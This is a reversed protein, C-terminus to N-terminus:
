LLFDAAQLKNLAYVSIAFDAVGDGNVDGQVIQHDGEVGVTLQGAVKTFADVFKFKDDASTMVNADIKRLDILDGQARNFDVIVDRDSLAVTSDTLAVFAFQDAGDGGILLDAGSGGLVRDAGGGGNIVNAGDGGTLTDGFASGTLNEISNLIDKGAGGTAQAVGDVKDGNWRILSVMVAADAHEYSATDVGEGGDLVDNGAGGELTDNGAYGLLRNDGANGILHNGLANGSGDLNGTGTLTLASATQSLAFSQDSTVAVVSVTAAQAIGRLAGAAVSSGSGILDHFVTPMNTHTAAWERMIASGDDSISINLQNGRETVETPDINYRFADNGSVLADQSNKVSIWSVSGANSVVDNNLVKVGTAESIAIGNGSTGVVLNDTVLVNKFQGVAEENRMFIGQIIDGEGRVIVNGSIVINSAEKLVNGTFFQIGDAHDGEIKTFNTIYNNTISINSSGSSRIGDMRIDHIYNNDIKVGNNDGANIAVRLQQFDSNTISVNSSSKFGIGDMDDRPDGNMTGHFSMNDFHIDRSNMVYVAGSVNAASPAVDVVINSFNFGSSKNVVLDTLVAPHDADASTVTVDASMDKAKIAIDSYTGARLLINDGAVAGKLAANLETSNSVYIASM